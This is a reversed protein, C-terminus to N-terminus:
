IKKIRTRKISRKPKQNKQTILKKKELKCGEIKSKDPISIKEELKM